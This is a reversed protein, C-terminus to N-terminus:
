IRKLRLMAGSIEVAKGDAGTQKRDYEIGRADAADKFLFVSSNGDSTWWAGWATWGDYPEHWIDTIHDNNHTRFMGVLPLKDTFEGDDIAEKWDSISPVEFGFPKKLKAFDVHENYM